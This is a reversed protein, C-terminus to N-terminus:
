LESWAELRGKGDFIVTGGPYDWAEYFRSVSVRVPEGLLKRVDDKSMKRHLSRWPTRDKQAPTTDETSQTAASPGSPTAPLPKVGSAFSALSFLFLAATLNRCAILTM